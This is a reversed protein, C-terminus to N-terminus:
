AGGMFARAGKSHIFERMRVFDNWLEDVSQNLSDVNGYAVMEHIKSHSGDCGEYLVFSYIRLRQAGGLRERLDRNVIELHEDRSHAVGVLRPGHDGWVLRRVEVDYKV